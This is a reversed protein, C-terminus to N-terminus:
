DELQQVGDLFWTPRDSAAERTFHWVERVQNGRNDAAHYADLERMFADFMVAAEVTDGVQRVELLEVDLKLIETRNEGSRASLDEAVQHYVADTVLPRIRALDGQDWAKQMLRYAREAGALFETRDFEPPFEADAEVPQVASGAAPPAGGAFKQNLDADDLGWGRRQQAGPDAGGVQAAGMGPRVAGGPATRAAAGPSGRAAFLKYLLFAIAGFILIDMFNIGEFAGGFFLAGLLGGLALGGLMGMLGGRRSLDARRQSNQQQAAQQRPSYKPTTSRKFPSGFTTKGGFSKGGGFRGADATNMAGLTLGLIAVLALFLGSLHQM